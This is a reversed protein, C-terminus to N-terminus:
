DDEMDTEAQKFTPLRGNKDREACSLGFMISGGAVMMGFCIAYTIQAGVAAYLASGIFPAIISRIGTFGAHLGMYIPVDDERAFYMVSLNWLLGSGGMVFGRICRAGYFWWLGSGKGTASELFPISLLVLLEVSWIYNFFARLRVPNYRDVLRGWFAVTFIMLFEPLISFAMAAETYGTGYNEILDVPVVFRLMLNPFGFMFMGCTFIIFRRDGLFVWLPRLLNRARKVTEVAGEHRVKIRGFEFDGLLGLMGALPWLWRYADPSLDLIWSGVSAAIVSITLFRARVHGRITGRHTPPYNSRLIGTVAPITAGALVMTMGTVIVFPTASSVFSVCILLVHGIVRPWFAFPMKRRHHIVNGWFMSFMMGVGNMSLMVALLWHPTDFTKKAVIVSLNAIGWSSAFLMAARLDHVYTARSLFPIRKLLSFPM